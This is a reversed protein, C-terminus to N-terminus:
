RRERAALEQRDQEQQALDRELARQNANWRDIWLEKSRTMEEYVPAVINRKMHVMCNIIKQYNEIVHNHIDWLSGLLQSLQACQKNLIEEIILEGNFRLTLFRTYIVTDYLDLFVTLLRLEQDSPKKTNKNFVEAMRTYREYVSAQPCGAIQAMVFAVENAKDVQKKVTNNLHTLYQIMDSTMARIKETEQASLLNKPQGATNERPFLIMEMQLVANTMAVFRRMLDAPINGSPIFAKMEALLKTKREAIETETLSPRIPPMPVTSSHKSTQFTGLAKKASPTASRGKVVPDTAANLVPPNTVNTDIKKFRTAEEVVKSIAYNYAAEHAKDVIPPNKECSEYYDPFAECTTAASSTSVAPSVLGQNVVPVESNGINPTHIHAHGSTMASASLTKTPTIPAASESAIPQGQMADSPGVQVTQSSADLSQSMGVAGLHRKILHDPSKPGESQPIHEDRRAIRNDRRQDEM